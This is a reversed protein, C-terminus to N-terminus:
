VPVVMVPCFAHQIVSRSTSGLLASTVPGRGRSGLVVMESDDAMDLVAAAASCRRIVARVPVDPFQDVWGDLREELLRREEAEVRAIEAVILPNTALRPVFLSDADWAHVAVLASQRFSAEPYAAGLVAKDNNEGSIGVVIGSRTGTHKPHPVVVVPGRAHAPLSLAVSGALLRRFGGAGRRGVVTLASRSSADRLADVPRAFAYAISVPIGPTVDIARTKAIRLTTQVEDQLAALVDPSIVSREPYGIDAISTTSLLHLNMKRFAAEKAAWEVATLAADSGDVGVTITSTMRSM